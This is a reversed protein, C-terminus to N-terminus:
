IYNRIMIKMQFNYTSVKLQMTDSRSIHRIMEVPCDGQIGFDKALTQLQERIEKIEEEKELLNRGLFYFVM